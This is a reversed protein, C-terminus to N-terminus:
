SLEEHYLAYQYIHGLGTFVTHHCRTITLVNIFIVLVVVVTQCCRTISLVNVSMVLVQLLLVVGPSVSYMSLCLWCRCCCYLVQHYLTCQCVYGVGAVLRVVGPSVSYMSLCLWCRCCCDSLVQYVSYVSLCSWYRCCCDSLVQHCLACQYVPSKRTISLVNIPMILVQLLLRVAGQSVSYMSLCSWYRCCCYWLVQHYPTCQCVHGIGAVITGCCRTICLVNVSMVLVQLLLVVVGQSVSCMSLCSWYKCCCYWLVQHYLTCQYVHCIDVVVTYCCRTICLVIVSMSVVTQFSTISLVSISMVFVQFLLRLVLSLSFKSLCSLYRFCTQFSTVSLVNVSIVLVQLLLMVVPSLVNNSIVSCEFSQFSYYGKRRAYLSSFSCHGQSQWVMVRDSDMITHLRHAITLVTCERFKERITEQILEDTRLLCFIVLMNM